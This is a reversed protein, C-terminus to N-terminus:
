PCIACPDPSGPYFIVNGLYVADGINVAEDCNVDGTEYPDPPCGIPPNIVCEGNRFVHNAIYVVDGINVGEDGNADGCLVKTTFSWVPGLTEEGEQDRSNIQWYYTTFYELDGPIYDTDPHNFNVLPPPNVTGFYVDYGVDDGPNPDGGVWNLNSNLAISESEDEPLPNSPINPIANIDAYNPNAETACEYYGMKYYGDGNWGTGWSNKIIWYQGIDNYGVVVVVHNISVDDSCRYIDGDWYGGVSSGIGITVPFPGRNVLSNKMLDPRYASIDGEERITTLRENWDACKDSCTADSCNGSTYYNCVQSCIDAEGCYCGTGDVYGLCAEDPVGFFEIFDLARDAWGGCCTQMGNYSHCDSVLYQESLDLDLEPNNKRINYMAEVTGISGFAWCSGCGGQNKVSTIWNYGNHNRWDFSTPLDNSTEFSSKSRDEREEDTIRIMGKISKEVLGFLETVSGVTGKSTKDVCVAYERSFPDKGDSATMIGYGCEACYSFEQGCKGQLFDWADCESGNPFVCVGRQGQPTDIIRYEYGLEMCYVAAPNSTGPASGDCETQKSSMESSTEDAGLHSVFSVSLCILITLIISKASMIIRGKALVAIRYTIINKNYCKPTL